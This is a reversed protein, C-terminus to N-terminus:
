ANIILTLRATRVRSSSALQLMQPAQALPRNHAARQADCRVCMTDSRGLLASPHPHRQSLRCSFCGPCASVLLKRLVVWKACQSAPNSNPDRHSWLGCEKWSVVNSKINFPKKKLPEPYPDKTKRGSFTQLITM